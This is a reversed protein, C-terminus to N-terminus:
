PDPALSRNVYLSLPGSVKTEVDRYHTWRPDAQIRTAVASAISFSYDEMDEPKRDPHKLVIAVDVHQETQAILHDQLQPLTMDHFHSDWYGKKNYFLRNETPQYHGFEYFTLASVVTGWDYASYSQWTVRQPISALAAALARQSIRLAMSDAGPDRARTHAQLAGQGAAVLCIAVALSLVARAPRGRLDMGGGLTAAACALGPVVYMVEKTLDSTYGNALLFLLFSVPWWAVIIDTSAWARRPWLVLGGVLVIGMSAMTLPGCFASLQAWTSQAAAGLPQRLQWANSTMYYQDFFPIKYALMIVAPLAPVACWVVLRLVGSTGRGRRFQEVLLLAFVPLCTIVAYVAGTDRALTALSVCAGAVALWGPRASVSFLGLSLVSSSVFFMSQYDPWPAGMGSREDYLGVATCFLVALGLGLFVSGTRQRVFRVFLDLFLYLAAATVILHAHPWWLLRPWALGLAAPQLVHRAGDRLAGWLAAIYGDELLADRFTINAWMGNAAHEVWLPHHTYYASWIALAAGSVCLTLLLVVAAPLRATLRAARHGIGHAAVM